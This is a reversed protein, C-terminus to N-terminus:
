FHFKRLITINWTRPTRDGQLTELVYSVNRRAEIVKYPGEWNAGLKEGKEMQSAEIRRLVM